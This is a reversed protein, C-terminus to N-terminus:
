LTINCLEDSAIVSKQIRQQGPFVPSTVPQRRAQRVLSWGLGLASEYEPQLGDKLPFPRNVRGGTKQNEDCNSYKQRTM